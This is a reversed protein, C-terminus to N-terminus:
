PNSLKKERWHIGPNNETLFKKKFNWELGDKHIETKVQAM